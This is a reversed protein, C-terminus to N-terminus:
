NTTNKLHQTRYHQKRYQVERTEDTDNNLNIKHKGRTVRKYINICTKKYCNPYNNKKLIKSNKESNKHKFESISSTIARNIFKIMNRAVHRKQSSSLNFYFNICRSMNIPKM